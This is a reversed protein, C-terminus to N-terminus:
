SVTSVVVSVGALETVLVVVESPESELGFYRCSRWVTPNFLLCMVITMVIFPGAM